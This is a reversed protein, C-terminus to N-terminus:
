CEHVVGGDSEPAFGGPGAHSHTGVLAVNSKHYIGGYRRQLEQLVGDRVATDGCALDAIVYVWRDHTAPDEVLFARSYIRQRLGTGKQALSAYGMMGVEVVPGTVDSKGVGVTYLQKQQQPQQQQSHVLWPATAAAATLLVLPLRM